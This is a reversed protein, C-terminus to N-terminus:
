KKEHIHIGILLTTVEMSLADDMFFEAVMSVTTLFQDALVTLCHGDGGQRLFRNIHCLMVLLMCIARGEHVVM